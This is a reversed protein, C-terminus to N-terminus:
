NTFAGNIDKIFIPNSSTTILSKDDVFLDLKSKNHNDKTNTIKTIDNNYLLFLPGLISGQPV